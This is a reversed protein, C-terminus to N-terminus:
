KSVLGPWMTWFCHPEECLLAATRLGLRSVQFIGPIHTHYYEHQEQNFKQLTNSYDAKSDEAM